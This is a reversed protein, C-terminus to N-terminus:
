YEPIGAEHYKRQMTVLDKDVSSDSVVECIWDPTGVLEIHSGDQRDAPPALRGAELTSWLAMMADPENSIDAGQHVLTAGDAYFEGLDTEAVITGIVRSVVEKVKVHSEIREPSIDILIKGEVFAIKGRDPFDDSYAWQRFGDLTHATPPVEILQMRHDNIVTAM